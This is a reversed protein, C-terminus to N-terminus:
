GSPPTTTAAICPGCSRWRTRTATGGACDLFARVAQAHLATYRRYGSPSRGAPPLAGADEYNRIAQASLGHERALDVPRM